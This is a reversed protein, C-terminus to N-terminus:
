YDYENVKTNINSVQEDQYEKAILREAEQEVAPADSM